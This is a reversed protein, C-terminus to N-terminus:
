QRRYTALLRKLLMTSYVLDPQVFREVYGPFRWAISPLARRFQLTGPLVAYAQLHGRLTRCASM